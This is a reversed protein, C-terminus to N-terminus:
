VPFEEKRQLVRGMSSALAGGRNGGHGTKVDRVWCAKLLHVAPSNKLKVYSRGAGLFAARSSQSSRLSFDRPGKLFSLSLPTHAMPGKGQWRVAPSTGHTLMQRAVPAPSTCTPEQSPLGMDRESNASAYGQIQMLKEKTDVLVHGPMSISFCSLEESM